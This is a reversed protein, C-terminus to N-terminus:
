KSLSEREIWDINRLIIQEGEVSFTIRDDVRWDQEKLFEESFQIAVDGTGDETDVLDLTYVKNM